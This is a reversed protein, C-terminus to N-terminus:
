FAVSDFVDGLFRLARALIRGRPANFSRRVLLSECRRFHRTPPCMVVFWWVSRVPGTSPFVPLKTQEGELFSNLMHRWCRRVALRVRVYCFGCAATLPLTKIVIGTCCVACYYPVKHMAKRMGGTPQTVTDSRLDITPRSPWLGRRESMSCIGRAATRERRASRHDKVGVSGGMGGALPQLFAEVRSLLASAVAASVGLWVLGQVNSRRFPLLAPTGAAASQPRKSCTSRCRRRAKNTM